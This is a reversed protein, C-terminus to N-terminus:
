GSVDGRVPISNTDLIVNENSGNLRIGSVDAINEKLEILRAEIQSVRVILNENADWTERLELLYSEIVGEITSKMNSFSYGPQYEIGSVDVDVAEPRVGRVMVVHGIPACGEGEGTKQNPDVTEQVNKILAESPNNFESNIIVVEITGGVTLLKDKASTYVNTLWERVEETLTGETRNFWDTVTDTPIFSSPNFGGRWRRTVKCGGVGDIENVKEIYDARNGGFAENGFSNFYRERFAEVDEEDEGPILIETLKATELDNLENSTEIPLLDGLQQNAATGATECTVQYEGEVPNIMSTVVYNLENLNFRDGISIAANAPIVKLRCIASTEEHPLLGREAARKILYYYSATDAYLENVVMDLGEYLESIRAAAPALADYIVSGERKDFDDSVEALMDELVTDFDYNEFM